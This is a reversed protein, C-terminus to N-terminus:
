ATIMAPVIVATSNATPPCSSTRHLVFTWTRREPPLRHAPGPEVFEDVRGGPQGEDGEEGRGAPRVEGDQAVLECQGVRRQRFLEGGEGVGAVDLDAFGEDALSRARR